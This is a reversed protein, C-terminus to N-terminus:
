ELLAVSELPAVEQAMVPTLLLIGKRGDSDKHMQLYSKRLRHQESFARHTIAMQPGWTDALHAETEKDHEGQLRAKKLLM